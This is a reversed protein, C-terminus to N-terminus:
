RSAADTGPGFSRCQDGADAAFAVERTDSLKFLVDLVGEKVVRLKRLGSPSNDVNASKRGVDSLLVNNM